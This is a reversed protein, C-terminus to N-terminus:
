IKSKINGDFDEHLLSDLINKLYYLKNLWIASIKIQKKAKFNIVLLDNNHIISLM